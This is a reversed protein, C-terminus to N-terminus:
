RSHKRYSWESDEPGNNSDIDSCNCATADLAPIVPTKRKRAAEAKAVGHNQQRVLSVLFEQGDRAPTIRFIARSGLHSEALAQDAHDGSRSARQMQGRDIVAQPVGAGHPIARRVHRGPDLL